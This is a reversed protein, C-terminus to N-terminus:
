IGVPIGHQAGNRDTFTVSEIRGRQGVITFADNANLDIRVTRGDRNTAYVESAGAPLLGLLDYRDPGPRLLFLGNAVAEATFNCTGWIVGDAQIATLCVGAATPFIALTMRPSVYAARALDPRAGASPDPGPANTESPALNASQAALAADSSDAARRLASFGAQQASYASPDPPSATPQKGARPKAAAGGNDFELGMILFALALM